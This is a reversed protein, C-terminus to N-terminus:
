PRLLGLLASKIDGIHTVAYFVLHGTGTILASFTLTALALQKRLNVVGDVHPKMAKVQAAVGEPGDLIDLRRVIEAQSEYLRGRGDAARGQERLIEKNQTEVVGLREYIDLLITQNTQEPQRPPM